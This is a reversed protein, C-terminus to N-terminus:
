SQHFDRDEEMFFPLAIREQISPQRQFDGFQSKLVNEYNNPVNIMCNEMRIKQTPLIDENKFPLVIIRFYLTKYAWYTKSRVHLSNKDCLFSCLRAVSQSAIKIKGATTDKLQKDLELVAVKDRIDVEEELTETTDSLMTNRGKITLPFTHVFAQGMLIALSSLIYQIKAVKIMPLVCLNPLVKYTRGNNIGENKHEDRFRTLNTKTFQKIKVYTEPENFDHTYLAIALPRKSFIKFMGKSFNKLELELHEQNFTSSRLLRNIPRNVQWYGDVQSWIEYKELFKEKWIIHLIKKLSSHDIFVDIDNDWYLFRGERIAGILFGGGCWNKFNFNDLLYQFDQQIKLTELQWERLDDKHVYVFNM